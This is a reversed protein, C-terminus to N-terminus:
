TYRPFLSCGSLLGQVMGSVRGKSLDVVVELIRSKGLTLTRTTLQETATSKNRVALMYEGAPVSDLRFRGERDTAAQRGPLQGWLHVTMGAIPEGGEVLRGIITGGKSLVLPPVEM